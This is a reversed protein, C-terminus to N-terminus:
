LTQRDINLTELANCLSMSELVMLASLLSFFGILVCFIVSLYPGAMLFTPPVILPGTGLMVNLILIVTMM